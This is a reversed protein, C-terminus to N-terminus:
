HQRDHIEKDMLLECLSAFMMTPDFRTTISTVFSEYGDGLVGLTMLIIESDKLGEGTAALSDKLVSLRTIFEKM